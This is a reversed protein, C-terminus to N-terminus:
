NEGKQDRSREDGSMRGTEGEKGIFSLHAFFPFEVIDSM